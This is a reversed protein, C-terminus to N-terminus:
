TKTQVTTIATFYKLNRTRRATKSCYIAEEFLLVKQVWGRKLAGQKAFLVKQQQFATPLVATVKASAGSSEVCKRPFFASALQDSYFGFIEELGWVCM